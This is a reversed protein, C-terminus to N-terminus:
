RQMEGNPIRHRFLDGITTRLFRFDALADERLLALSDPADLIPQTM